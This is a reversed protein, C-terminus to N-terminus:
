FFVTASIIYFINKEKTVTQLYTARSWLTMWTRPTRRDKSEKNVHDVSVWNEHSFSCSLSRCATEEWSHWGSAMSAMWVRTRSWITVHGLRAVSNVPIYLWQSFRFDPLVIVLFFFLLIFISAYLNIAVMSIVWKIYESYISVFM